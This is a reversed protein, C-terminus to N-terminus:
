LADCHKDFQLLTCQANTRRLARQCPRDRFTCRLSCRCVGLVICQHDFQQLKLLSVAWTSIDSLHLFLTNTRICENTGGYPAFKPNPSEM